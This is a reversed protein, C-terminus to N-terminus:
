PCILTVIAAIDDLLCSNRVQLPEDLSQMLWVEDGCVFIVAHGIRHFDAGHQHMFQEMSHQGIIGSV